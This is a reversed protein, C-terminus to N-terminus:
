IYMYLCSMTTDMPVNNLPQLFDYLIILPNETTQKAGVLCSLLLLDSTLSWQLLTVASTFAGNRVNLTVAGKLTGKLDLAVTNFPFYVYIFFFFSFDLLKRICLCM